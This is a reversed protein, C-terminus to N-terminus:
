SYLLESNKFIDGQEAENNIENVIKIEKEDTVKDSSITKSNIAILSLLLILMAWGFVILSNIWSLVGCARVSKGTVMCNITLLSLAFPPIMLLSYQFRQKFNYEENNVSTKYPIFISITILICGILAFSAQKSLNKIKLM